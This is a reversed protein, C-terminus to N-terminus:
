LGLYARRVGEDERLDAAPGSRVIRGNEIVYARDALDLAQHVEQSVLLITMGEQNLQRLADMITEVLIPALGLSPEDLMLLRPNAMLGRGIAVMQQEGGSLTGALQRSRERLRPFLRYVRELSHAAKARAEPLYAGLQLNEIVQMQPFLARGEPVHILGRQCVVHTPQGDLSAGDFAMTGSLPRMLGSITKLLTTKGAGNAGVLTVIEGQRVDLGVDWLVPLSGYAVNLGEVRLM